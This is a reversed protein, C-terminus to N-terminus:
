PLLISGKSRRGENERYAIGNTLQRRVDSNLQYSLFPQHRIQLPETLSPKSIRKPLSSNALTSRISPRSPKLEPHVKGLQLDPRGGTHIGILRIANRGQNKIKEELNRSPLEESKSQKCSVPAPVWFLKKKDAFKDFAFECPAQGLTSSGRGSTGAGRKSIAM